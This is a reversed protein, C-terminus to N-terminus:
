HLERWGGTVIDRKPIFTKMHVRNEFVSSM